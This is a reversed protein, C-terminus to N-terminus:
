KQLWKLLMELLVEPTFPKVMFDNMGASICKERDEPFVNATMAIIPTKQHTQLKRIHKTADLGDVKPMQMDMFIVDYDYKSTLQLAEEGDSAIDVILDVYELQMKAVECNIPEDDVVLARKGNHYKKILDETPVGEDQREINERRESKSLCITFWFTSGKGLTSKVGIDGGMLRAIRKTISLGLGTGGYKRTTSSDAQEFINFVRAIADPSIGVGTDTVKFRVVINEKSESEKKVTVTVYGRETFKIANGILNILAQKIRTADGLLNSPWSITESMVLGINKSKAASAQLTVSDVLISNIDISEKELVLMGAEIKSIDLINSIVSLLHTGSSKVIGLQRRQETTLNGRLLIDTMGLVGNMPTRIEHSMNALFTSKAKNAMEAVEKAEVIQATRESVICELNDRHLKLEDEAKKIETIDLYITVFGGDPIPAGRIGLVVGSSCKREKRHPQFKRAIEVQDSVFQEVDVSGYEGREANFRIFDAFTVSPRNILESPLNLLSTFQDNHVLLNLESDFLTIGGPFNDLVSKFLKNQRLVKREIEMKETIDTKVAIFHSIKGNDDLLGSIVIHEWFLEGNKKRNCIEGRWEGGQLIIGWMEVYVEKPTINSQIIRPNQGIAEESSYGTLEEFRPNVYEIFGEKDTIVISNPSQELVRSLTKLKEEAVKRRDPLHKYASM